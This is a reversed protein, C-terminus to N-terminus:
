AAPTSQAGTPTCGPCDINPRWNSWENTTFLGVPKPRLLSGKAARSGADFAAPLDDANRIDRILLKVALSHAAHELERLQPVAISDSLDSLVLVRSLRPLVEKLLELRKAALGPSMM